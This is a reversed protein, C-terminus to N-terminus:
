KAHALSELLLIRIVESDGSTSGAMDLASEGEVNRLSLDAGVEERLLCKVIEENECLVALMLPTQGERDTANANAGYSLLTQLVEFNGRDAAYHLPSMGESDQQSPDVGTDLLAKLADVEGDVVAKFLLTQGGEEWEEGSSNRIPQAFVSQVSAMSSASDTHEKLLAEGSKLTPNAEELQNQLFIYAKMASKRPFGEFNKWADWKAKAVMNISWPQKTNVDGVTCQKYLGYFQLKQDDPLWAYTSIKNASAQFAEETVDSNDISELMMALEAIDM